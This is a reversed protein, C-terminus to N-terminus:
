ARPAGGADDGGPLSSPQQEVTSAAQTGQTSAQGNAQPLSQQQVPGVAPPAAQEEGDHTVGKKFEKIGEGMNRGLQPLKNVGFVLVVVVVLVIIWKTDM